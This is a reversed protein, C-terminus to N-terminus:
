IYSYTGVYPTFINLKIQWKKKESAIKKKKENHMWIAFFDSVKYTVCAPLCCTSHLFPKRTHTHTCLLKNQKKGLEFNGSASSSSPLSSSKSLLKTARACSLRMEHSCTDFSNLSYVPFFAFPLAFFFFFICYFYVVRSGFIIYPRTHTHTHPHLFQGHHTRALSPFCTRCVSYTYWLFIRFTQAIRVCARVNLRLFRVIIILSCSNAGFRFCNDFSSIACFCYMYCLLWLSLFFVAPQPAAAHTLSVISFNFHKTDSRVSFFLSDSPPVFLHVVFTRCSAHSTLQPASGMKHGNNNSILHHIDVAKQGCIADNKKRRRQKASLTTTDDLSSSSSLSLLPLVVRSSQVTIMSNLFNLLEFLALSLPRGRARFHLECAETGLWYTLCPPRGVVTRYIFKAPLAHM